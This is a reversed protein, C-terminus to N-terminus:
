PTGPREPCRQALPRHRHRDVSPVQTCVLQGAPVSSSLSLPLHHFLVPAPRPGCPGTSPLRDPLRRSKDTANRAITVFSITIFLAVEPFHLAAGEPQPVRRTYNRCDTEVAYLGYSSLFAM